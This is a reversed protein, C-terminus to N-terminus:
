HNVRKKEDQQYDVADHQHQRNQELGSLAAAEGGTKATGAGRRIRQDSDALSSIKEGLDTPPAASYKEAEAENEL